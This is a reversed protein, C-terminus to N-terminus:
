VSPRTNISQVVVGVSGKKCSSGISLSIGEASEKLSSSGNINHVLIPLTGDEQCGFVVVDRDELHAAM